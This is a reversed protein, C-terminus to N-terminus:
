IPGIVEVERELGVEFRYWVSKRIEESIRAKRASPISIMDEMELFEEWTRIGQAWIKQELGKGVGPIHIYTNNLM